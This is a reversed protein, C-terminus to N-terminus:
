MHRLAVFNVGPQAIDPTASVIVVTAPTPLSGDARLRAVVRRAVADADGDLSDVIPTIGRWLCLRRAVEDTPSAAYVAAAPRRASLVRATRGERTLAIIVDVGARSALTVAADCLPGLHGAAHESPGSLEWMPPASEAHTIIRDLVQVARVPHEGIATEGSLMIAAAGADVAGAADSVEARTPRWETRMSELVETAVIVPLGRERGVRLVEKQVRPVEELPVELGLDGRAVMLADAARAIEALREIAERRELKAVIPVRPRGADAAIARAREIDSASQVFSLAVIDIGAVLGIRLDIQDKETLGAAPLPVNPANIGKHEGLEGGDLVRTVVRNAAVREVELEIRGDDLLVRAGPKLSTILPAYTTSVVGRKGPFSGLAIELQDGPTLTLPMGGELSGMRIKPGSLDQLIAVQRGAAAAASRIDRITQEHSPADGHSFNLRFVDVGAGVLAEITVTGFSAPGITAIIKTHRV